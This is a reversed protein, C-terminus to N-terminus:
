KDEFYEELLENFRLTLARVEEDDERVLPAQFRPHLWWDGFVLENRDVASGAPAPLLRRATPSLKHYYERFIGIAGETAHILQVCKGPRWNEPNAYISHPANPKILTSLPKKPARADAALLRLLNNSM